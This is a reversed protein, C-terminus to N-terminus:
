DEEPLLYVNERVETLDSNNVEATTYVLSVDNERLFTTNASGGQLFRYAEEDRPTPFAHIRSFAPRGTIATFATAKWPDLIATGREAPLNERIWVFARYDTTDIMQYYGTDQRDPIVVVLTVAVLALALVKGAYRAVLPPAKIRSLSNPALQFDKMGALGAGAIIGVMLMLFMLGREYFVPLGYHFTFFAVLVVLVALLGLVLGYNKRGGRMALLFTGLLCAAIPLYGYDLMIRPFDIYTPLPQPTLLRAATPLLMRFIWPFPALFSVLLALTLGLAHKFDAGLNLLIYPVLVIVVMIASPAHISLLFAIFLFLVLYARIGRFNFALYLALPLFLLGMAVPVLFGPGLIGATTPILCTFLAAEWGFGQKRAFIYVSSVTILFIFGPFFRFITLWSIGSIQHFAGWFIHFGAELHPNDSGIVGQGLFPDTFTTSGAQWMAKIYALHVWEDIHAPFPYGQHPIFAIYYALALVPAMLYASVPVSRLYHRWSM